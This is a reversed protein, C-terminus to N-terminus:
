DEHSKAPAKTAKLLQEAPMSNRPAKDLAEQAYSGGRRQTFSRM